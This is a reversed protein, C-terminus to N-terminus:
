CDVELLDWGGAGGVSHRSLEKWSDKEAAHASLATLLASTICIGLGKKM